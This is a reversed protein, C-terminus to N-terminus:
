SFTRAHYHKGRRLICDMCAQVLVFCIANNLHFRTTAASNAIHIYPISIQATHTSQTSILNHGTANQYLADDIAQPETFHSYIGNIKIFPLTRIKHIFSMVQDPFIGLRSLGTDVKIHVNFIYNHEKGVANLEHATDYDYM